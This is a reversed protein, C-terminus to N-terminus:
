SCIQGHSNPNATHTMQQLVEFFVLHMADKMVAHFLQWKEGGSAGTWVLPVDTTTNTVSRDPPFWSQSHKYHLESFLVDCGKNHIFLVQETGFISTAMIMNCCFYSISLMFYNGNKGRSAGTWVSPIGTTTNAASGDTSILIALTQQRKYCKATWCLNCFNTKSNSNIVTM